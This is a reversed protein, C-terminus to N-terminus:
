VRVVLFLQSVDPAGLAVRRASRVVSPALLLIASTGSRRPNPRCASGYGALATSRLLVVVLLAQKALTPLAPCRAL